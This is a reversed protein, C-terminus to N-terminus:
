VALNSLFQDTCREWSYTCALRRCAGPDCAALARDVAEALDDSLCGASAHGDLIDIPGEVPFAAVPLGCALAELVVLGFTDTRSPFVFVDSSAFKSVLDAGQLSGFFRVDPHAARLRPLLPGDGVVWKECDYKLALFATINKEVSVRGVYLAVPRDRRPKSDAPRFQMVDVGRSWRVIRGFQREHLKRELSATSVMLSHSAAHFWRLYTYTVNPPLFIYKQLYDPFNTHYSTTYPIGRAVCFERVSLGVPGETAIHVPARPILRALKHPPVVSLRLERYLPCSCNWFMSPEIVTVRHGLQQLYHRTTQLTRAVGNIEAFTDTALTIHM